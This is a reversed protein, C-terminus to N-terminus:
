NGKREKRAAAIEAEIEEEGMYPLTSADKRLGYFALRGEALAQARESPQPDQILIEENMKMNMVHPCDLLATVPGQIM